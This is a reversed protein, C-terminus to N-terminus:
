EGKIKFEKLRIIYKGLLLRGKLYIRRVSGRTIDYEDAIDQSTGVFIVKGTRKSVVELTDSRTVPPYGFHKLFNNYGGYRKYIYSESVGLKEIERLRPSRLYETYFDDLLRQYDIKKKPKIPNEVVEVDDDEVFIYHGETKVVTRLDIKKM